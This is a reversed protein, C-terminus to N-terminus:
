KGPKVINIPNIKNEGEIKADVEIKNGYGADRGKTKLYFIIAATNDNDILDKLKSEVGEVMMDNIADVQEKYEEDDKCWKYHQARSLGAKNCATLVLGRTDLLAKLLKKKNIDTRHKKVAKNLSGALQKDTKKKAM